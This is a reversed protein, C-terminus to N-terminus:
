CCRGGAKGDYRARQRANFFAGRSLAAEGPHHAAMHERYRRYSPVGVILCLAEGVRALLSYLRNM